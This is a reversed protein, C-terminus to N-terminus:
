SLRTPDYFQLEVIRSGIEVEVGNLWGKSVVEWARDIFLEPWRIVYDSM